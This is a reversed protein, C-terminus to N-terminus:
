SIPLGLSGEGSSAMYFKDLSDEIMAQLSLSRNCTMGMFIASSDGGPSLTLSSFCDAIFELSGFCITASLSCGGCTLRERDTTVNLTSSHIMLVDPAFCTAFAGELHM